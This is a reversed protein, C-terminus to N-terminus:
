GKKRKKPATLEEPVTELMEWGMKDEVIELLAIDAVGMNPGADILPRSGSGGASNLQRVRRSILNVLINPNGVKELAKKSLDANLLRKRNTFQAHYM